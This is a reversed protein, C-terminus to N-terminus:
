NYILIVYFNQTTLLKVYISSFSDESRNEGFVFHMTKNKHAAKFTLKVNGHVIIWFSFTTAEAM